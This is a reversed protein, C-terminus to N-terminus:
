DNAGEEGEAEPLRVRIDALFINLITPVRKPDDPDPLSQPLPPLADPAPPPVLECEGEDQVDSMTPIGEAALDLLEKESQVRELRDEFGQLHARQRSRDERPLHAVGEYLNKIQSLLVRLADDQSAVVDLVRLRANLGIRLEAGDILLTRDRPHLRREEGAALKLFTGRKSNLDEVWFLGSRCLIRAHQRSVTGDWAITVTNASARGLAIEAQDLLYERGDQPGGVAVLRPIATM